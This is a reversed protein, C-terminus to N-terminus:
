EPNLTEKKIIEIIRTVLNVLEIITTSKKTKKNSRIQIGIPDYGYTNFLNFLFSINLTSSYINSYNRM